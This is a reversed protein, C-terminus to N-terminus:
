SNQGYKRCIETLRFGAATLQEKYAAKLAAGTSSKRKRILSSVGGYAAAAGAATMVASLMVHVDAAICVAACAAGAAIAGAPAAAGSPLVAPVEKLELKKLESKMEDQFQPNGSDKLWRGEPQMQTFWRDMKQQYVRNLEAHDPKARNNLQFNILEVMEESLKEWQTQFVEEYTM